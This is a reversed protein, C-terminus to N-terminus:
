ERFLSYPFTEKLWILIEKNHIINYTRNLMPSNTDFIESLEPTAEEVNITKIERRSEINHKRLIRGIPTDAKILDEKFQNDLLKLPVVSVAYILPIKTGIVVVRYNVTQGENINLNVAMEKTAPIFKQTLTNINVHGMLVDLINTVSGDTILLIKQTSSLKGVTGEINELSDLINQDM